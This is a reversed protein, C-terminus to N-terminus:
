GTEIRHMDKIWVQSVCHIAINLTNKKVKWLLMFLIYIHVKDTDTYQTQTSHKHVKDTDTYQTIIQTQKQTKM